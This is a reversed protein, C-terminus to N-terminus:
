PQWDGAAVVVLGPAQVEAPVAFFRVVPGELQPFQDVLQLAAQRQKEDGETFFVTTAAVDDKPYGGPDATEWGEGEIEASIAAALGTVDTGNLVTVPVRVPTAPPLEAAPPDTDLEPLDATVAPADTPATAPQSPQVVSSRASTEETGPTTVTAVGLVGAAVAAVAVLGKLLRRPRRPPDDEEDLFAGTRRAEKRRAVEAAVRSAERAQREARQAARGGMVSGTVPGPPVPGGADLDREIRHEYSPEEDAEDHPVDDYSDDVGDSGTRRGAVDRDPILSTLPAPPVPEPPPVPASDAVRGPSSPKTWDGYVPSEGPPPSPRVGMAPLRSARREVFPTGEPRGPLERPARVEGRGTSWPAAHDEDAWSAPPRSPLEPVPQSVLPPGAPSPIDRLVSPAPRRQDPPTASPGPGELDTVPSPVAPFPAASTRPGVPPPVPPRPRVAPRADDAM